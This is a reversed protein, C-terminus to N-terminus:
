AQRCRRDDHGIGPDHIVAADTTTVSVGTM